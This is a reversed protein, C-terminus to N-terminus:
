FTTPNIKILVLFVPKSKSWLKTLTLQSQLASLLSVHCDRRSHFGQQQRERGVSSRSIVHGTRNTKMVVKRKAETVPSESSASKVKLAALRHKIIQKQTTKL